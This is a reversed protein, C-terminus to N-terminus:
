NYPGTYVLNNLATIDNTSKNGFETTTISIQYSPNGKNWVTTSRIYGSYTVGNFIIGGSVVVYTAGLSYTNSGDSWQWTSISTGNTPIAFFQQNANNPNSWAVVPNTNSVAWLAPFIFEVGGSFSMGGDFQM